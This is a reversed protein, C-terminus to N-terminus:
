ETRTDELQMAGSAGVCVKIWLRACSPTHLLHMDIFLVCRAADNSDVNSCGSM